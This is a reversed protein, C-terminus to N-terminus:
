QEGLVLDLAWCGRVHPGKVRLHDLVATNDCGAEELADALVALRAPELQGSSVIPLDYVAAALRCVTTTLWSSDFTAVSFPNRFIDRLLHTQITRAADQAANLASGSMGKDGTDEVISRAIQIADEATFPFSLFYRCTCPEEGVIDQLEYIGFLAEPSRRLQLDAHSEMAEIAAALPAHPASNQACCAAFLRLKRDSAKEHLFELM